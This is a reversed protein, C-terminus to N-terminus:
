VKQSNEPTIQGWEQHNSLIKVYREHNFYRYDTATGFFMKGNAKMLNNLGEEHGQGEPQALSFALALCVSITSSIKM